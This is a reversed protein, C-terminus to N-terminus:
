ASIGPSTLNNWTEPQGSTTLNSIVGASASGLTLLLSPFLSKLLMM